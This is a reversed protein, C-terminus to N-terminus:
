SAHRSRIVEMGQDTVMEINVIVADPKYKHMDSETDEENGPNMIVEFNNKLAQEMKQAEKQDNEVVLVRLKRKM